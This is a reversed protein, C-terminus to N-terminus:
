APRGLLLSLRAPAQSSCCAPSVGTGLTAGDLRPSEGYFSVLEAVIAAGVPTFLACPEDVRELAIGDLIALATADAAGRSERLPSATVRTVGLQELGVCVGVVEAVRELREQGTLPRPCATELRRLIATARERVAPSLDSAAVAERLGALPYREEDHDHHHGCCGDHDHSGHGHDHDEHGHEGGCCHGEGEHAHTAGEHITFHVADDVREFHMHFDGVPLRSLEWELASPRLGLACLAGIMRDGSVGNHSDIHLTLSM